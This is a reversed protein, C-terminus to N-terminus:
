KINEIDSIAKDIIELTFEIAEIIGEMQYYREPVYEYEEHPELEEKYYNQKDILEQKIGLLIYKMVECVKRNIFLENDVM